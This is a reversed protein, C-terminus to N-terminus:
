PAVRTLQGEREGEPGGVIGVAWVTGEITTVDRAGYEGLDLSGIGRGSALDVRALLDDGAAWLAGDGVSIRYPGRDSNLVAISEIVGKEPNIKSLEGDINAVWPAGDGFLVDSIGDEVKMRSVIEDKEPGIRLLQNDTHSISGSTQDLSVAWVSGDGVALSEAIGPTRIEAVVEGKEPDIKAVRGSQTDEYLAVWVGHETATIGSPYGDVPIDHTIQETEPDVRMVSEPEDRNAIWVAGPFRTM